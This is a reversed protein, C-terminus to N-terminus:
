SRVATFRFSGMFGAKVKGSMRDNAVKGSFKLSIKIPKRATSKWAIEGTDRDYSIEEIETTGEPSHQSGGLVGNVTELVLKSEIPGAPGNVTLLWNGEVTAPAAGQSAIEAQAEQAARAKIRSAGAANVYAPLKDWGRVTSTSSLNAHDLDVDWDPIRKLLEEFVVRAELRALVKGICTHIGHGFALHAANRERHIDFREPDPFVRDDHNAAGVLLLIASGAPVRQGHFEADRAVYRGVHPAPPEFRLVEELADPLLSPNEVLERRQDPHEALTKGTWGILRNTTENGAGALVNFFTILEDRTLKRRTGTEDTFEVNLLESTVDDSPHKARWDIYEGFSQEMQLGGEFNKPKGEETRLRADTIERVTQLDEEPIGLLMGIVRMPLQRGIDEIFDFEDRGELRKLVKITLERVLPELGNMRRPTFLRQVIQRHVTHQPPDEFIFTGPPMQVNQKMLELIGGRGSIFTEHDAFARRVDDYRSIAYFDYKENYYLPAEDRLRRYVPYPDKVISRIYPDYYVPNVSM